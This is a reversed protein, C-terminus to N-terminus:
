NRAPSLSHYDLGKLCVRQIRLFKLFKQLLHFRQPHRIAVVVNYPEIGCLIGKEITINQVHGFSRLTKKPDAGM